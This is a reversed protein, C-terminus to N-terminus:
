DLRPFVLKHGRRSPHRLHDQCGPRQLSTSWDIGTFNEKSPTSGRPPAPNDPRPALTYLTVPQAGSASACSGAKVVVQLRILDSLVLKISDIGVGYRAAAQAATMPEGHKTMLEVMRSKDYQPKILKSM